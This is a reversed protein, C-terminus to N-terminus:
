HASDFTVPIMVDDIAAPLLQGRAGRSQLRGDALRAYVREGGERSRLRLLENRAIWDGEDEFRRAGDAGFYEEVMRYRQTKGDAELRLWTAIGDCDACARAGRFELGSSTIAVVPDPGVPPAAM